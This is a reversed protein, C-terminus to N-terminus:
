VHDKQTSDIRQSNVQPAGEEEEEDETIEHLANYETELWSPFNMARVVHYFATRCSFGQARGDFYIHYALDAPQSAEQALNHLCVINRGDMEFSDEQGNSWVIYPCTVTHTCSGTEPEPEPRKTM